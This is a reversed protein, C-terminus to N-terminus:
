SKGDDFDTRNKLMAYLIRCLRHAVAILAMKYGHQARLKRFYPNLLIGPDLRTTLRKACCRAYSGV